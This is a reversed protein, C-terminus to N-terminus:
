GPGNLDDARAQAQAFDLKGEYLARGLITGSVGESEVECLRVIDDISGVQRKATSSVVPKRSAIIAEYAREAEERQSTSRDRAAAYDAALSPESCASLLGACLASMEASGPVAVVPACLPLRRAIECSLDGGCLMEGTLVVADVAGKASALGAIATAIEEAFVKSLANGRADDPFRPADPDTGEFFAVLGGREGLVEEAVRDARLEQATLGMLLEAMPLRGPSTSSPLAGFCPAVRVIRGRDILAASSERGIHAAIVCLEELPTGITSAFLASVARLSAVHATAPAPKVSMALSHVFVDGCASRPDTTTLVADEGIEAGLLLATKVALNEAHAFRSASLDAVMAESLRYTGPPVAAMFGGAAAIGSLESLRLGKEAFWRRVADARAEAGDPRSSLLPLAGEALLKAGSYVVALTTQPLTKVVLTSWGTRHAVEAVEKGTLVPVAPDEVGSARAGLMRQMRDRAGEALRAAEEMLNARGGALQNLTKVEM